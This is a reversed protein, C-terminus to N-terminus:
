TEQETEWQLLKNSNTISVNKIEIEDIQINDRTDIETMFKELIIIMELGFTVSEKNGTTKNKRLFNARM